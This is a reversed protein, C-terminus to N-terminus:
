LLLVYNNSKTKGYKVRSKDDIISLVVSEICVPCSTVALTNAITSPPRNCTLMELFTNTKRVFIDNCHLFIKCVFSTMKKKM